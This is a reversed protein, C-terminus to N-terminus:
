EGSGGKWGPAVEKQEMMDGMAEKFPKYIMALWKCSKGPEANFHQHTVGQPKTPLLLLDGAEWDHRVGDVVTYGSGEIVYIALGGQHRHKGNHVRIDAIFVGWGQLATDEIAKNLFHKSVGQRSQQFPREGGKIVVKGELARQRNKASNIYNIEYHSLQQAEPEKVRQGEREAM